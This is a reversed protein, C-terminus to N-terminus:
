IDGKKVKIRRKNKKRPPALIGKVWSGRKQVNSGGWISNKDILVILPNALPYKKEVQQGEMEMMEKKMGKKGRGEGRGFRPSWVSNEASSLNGSLIEM